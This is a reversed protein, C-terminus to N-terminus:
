RLPKSIGPIAKTLGPVAKDSVTHRAAMATNIEWLLLDAALRLAGHGSRGLATRVEISREAAEMLPDVPEAASVPRPSAICTAEASLADDSTIDIFVGRGIIRGDESWAFLGRAQIRRLGVRPLIARFEMLSSGGSRMRERCHNTAAQRDDEHVMAFTRALPVAVGALNEDDFVYRAGARDLTGTEAAGDIEWQGVIGAAALASPPSALRSGM